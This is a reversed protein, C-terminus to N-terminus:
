CCSNMVYLLLIVNQYWFSGHVLPFYFLKHILVYVEILCM